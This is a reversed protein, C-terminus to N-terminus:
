RYTPLIGGGPLGGSFPIPLAPAGMGSPGGKSPPALLGWEKAQERAFYWAMVTDNTHKSASYYLCGDIWKQVHPHCRGYRDNPILWAGNAIEVFGGPIGHEPHAKARGTTHPKIPLAADLQLAAQRFTDQAQNNEIRVVSGYARQKQIIKRVVTPFDWRGSEVDLIRRRRDALLEFTFFATEDHEEGLGIALDIGTFTPNPGRYESVLDFHGYERAAAKCKEIWEIKCAASEDDRAIGMFFRNFTGPSAIYQLRKNEIDIRAREIAEEMDKAPPLRTGDPLEWDFYFFREPFLPVDNLSDDIGPRILRCAYDEGSAYKPRLLEHDWPEKGARTNRAGDTVYVDGTITMRLLPLGGKTSLHHVLDEPHWATNSVVFRADSPDLRTRVGQDIFDITKKRQEPSSTNEQDLTDDAIAWNLRSGQVRGTELGVAAVSADRIGAPREIIIRDERWSEARSRRLHPFVLRLEASHEIYSAVLKVLKQAQEQTKSVVLGRTTVDRGLLFLTVAVLMITKSAGAPWILVCEPNDMMFDFGVRQHPACRIPRGTREERMVFEFFDPLSERARAAKAMLLKQVAEVHEPNSPDFKPTKM